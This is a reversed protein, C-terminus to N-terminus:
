DKLWEYLQYHEATMGSREYVAQARRNNTEVYLRIGKLGPTQEVKNKIHRYMASYVGNRRFPEEVFVSQIWLVTGNRWDSWEFTTLLSAVVKGNSEAVYYTGKSPDAFVAAVGKEVTSPDLQLQETEFAMKLQFQVITASDTTNAERIQIM